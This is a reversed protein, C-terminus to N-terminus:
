AGFAVRLAAVVRDFASNIRKREEGEPYPKWQMGTLPCVCFENSAYVSLYDSRRGQEALRDEIWCQFARASMELDLRFYPKGPGDLRIAEVAYSSMTPGCVVEVEGGGPNGGYYAAATRRWDEYTKKDSRSQEVGPKPGFESEVAQVAANVNGVQKITVAMPRPFRKEVNYKALSYDRASYRITQTARHPGEFMARRLAHFADRLEGQPLLDPNASAYDYEGAARDCVLEIILNDIAHWHEHGLSGGGKHKTLGTVRYRSEYTAAPAGGKWGTAGRGRAGFALGLKGGLGIHKDDIGMLDALDAFAAASQEVHFKGSIPDRLVWLGSQIERLQFMAKLQETSEVTVKRGGVRHFNEAVKFQFHVSEETVRAVRIVETEAWTWDAVKGNRATVVHNRFVGSGDRGDRFRVVALFREGMLTWARHLPNELINRARAARLIANQQLGNQKSEASIEALRGSTDKIVKGWAADAKALTAKAQALQEALEPKPKWGRRARKDIENEIVQFAYRAEAADNQLTVRKVDLDRKESRLESDAAQLAGLQETEDPTFVRGYYEESLNDLVKVVDNPTFAAELRDRLTQLGIAYDQRAQRSDQSPEKGIAAYIRDILFGAGAQMGAARLASWDVKGFLHSKVIVAKAERPNAELDEWDIESFYVRSGAKSAQRIMLAAAEKRSGGIWGTDRFRYMPSSPDDSYVEGDTEVKPTVESPQQQAVAEPREAQIRAIQEPTVEARSIVTASALPLAICENRIEGPAKPEDVVDFFPLSFQAPSIGLKAQKM